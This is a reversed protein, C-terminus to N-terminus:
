LSIGNIEAAHRDSSHKYQIHYKIPSLAQVASVKRVGVANILEKRLQPIKSNKILRSPIHVVSTTQNWRQFDAAMFKMNTGANINTKSANAYTNTNNHMNTTINLSTAM